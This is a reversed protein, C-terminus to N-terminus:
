LLGRRRGRESARRQSVLKDIFRQSEWRARFLAALHVPNPNGTADVLAALRRAAEVRDLHREVAHRLRLRTATDRDTMPTEEAGSAM